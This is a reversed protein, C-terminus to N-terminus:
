QCLEYAQCGLARALDFVHEVLFDDALTNQEMQCLLDLPVGSKASLEPISLDQAACLALINSCFLLEFDKHKM